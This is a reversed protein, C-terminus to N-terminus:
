ALDIRGRSESELEEAIAQLELLAAKLEEKRPGDRLKSVRDALAGAQSLLDRIEGTGAEAETAELAKGTM